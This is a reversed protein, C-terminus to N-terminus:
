ASSLLVKKVTEAITPVILDANGRLWEWIANIKNRNPKEKAFEKELAKLNAEIEQKKEPAIEAKKVREYAQEFANTEQQNLDVEPQIAQVASGNVDGGIEQIAVHIFPFENAFQPKHEIIDIGKGTIKTTQWSSGNSIHLDALKKERLYLMNFDLQNEPVPFLQKMEEREVAWNTGETAKKYLIELMRLRVADNTTGSM